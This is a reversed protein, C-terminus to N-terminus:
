AVVRILLKSVCNQGKYHFKLWRLLPNKLGVRVFLTPYPCDLIENLSPCLALLGSIVDDSAGVSIIQLRCCLSCTCVKGLGSESAPHSNQSRPVVLDPKTLVGTCNCLMAM